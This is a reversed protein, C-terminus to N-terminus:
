LKWINKTAFSHEVLSCRVYQPQFAKCCAYRPPPPTSHSYTAQFPLVGSKYWGDGRIDCGRDASVDTCFSTLQLTTSCPSWTVFSRFCEFRPLLPSMTQPPGKSSNVGPDPCTMYLDNWPCLLYIISYFCKKCNGHMKQNNAAMNNQVKLDCQFTFILM